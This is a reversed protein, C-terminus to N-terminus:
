ESVSMEYIGFGKIALGLMRGDGPVSFCREIVIALENPATLRIQDNSLVIKLTTDGSVDITLTMVRTGNFFLAAQKGCNGPHFSITLAFIVPLRASGLYFKMVAVPKATWAFDTEPQHFNTAPLGLGQSGLAYPMAYWINRSVSRIQGHPNRDVLQTGAGDGLQVQRTRAALENDSTLVLRGDATLLALQRAKDVHSLWSEMPTLHWIEDECFILINDSILLRNVEKSCKIGGLWGDVRALLRDNVEKITKSATSHENLYRYAWLGLGYERIGYVLLWGVYDLKEKEIEIRADSRQAIIVHALADLITLGCLHAYHQLLENFASQEHAARAHLGPAIFHTFLLAKLYELDNLQAKSGHSASWFLNVDSSWKRLGSGLM